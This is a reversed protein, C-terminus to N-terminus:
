PTITRRPTAPPFPLGDPRSPYPFDALAPNATLLMLRETEAPTVLM